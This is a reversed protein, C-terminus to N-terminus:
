KGEVKSKFEDLQKQLEAQVKDIGAEKLKERYKEVAKVPDGAKGFSIATEYTNVVNQLSTLETEIPQKNFVFRGYPFPKAIKEFESYYDKIGDWDDPGVIQFKDERGGWFNSSFTDRQENYGEPRALKGDKEAYQVGEIGYNLLRYVEKDSRILDYVMLAREPNQSNASISTGGHTISLKLINNNNKSIFPFMQLDAGPQERAVTTHLGKLTETHHAKMGNKGAKFAQDVDGKFNLVDERWYGKDGWEKMKKAFEVYIDDFVPLTVSYKEDYSKAYFIAPSVFDLAVHDTNTLIYGYALNATTINAQVEWPIVDPKNDKIGQFYKGLTDFDRIPETIGFEKAWDARYIAGHNTWQTFNNEPMLVIKGEYKCEEWQEPTVSAWVNPAYKPILEDLTLFAGKQANQWTELWDTATTILDVPEGSALLLNYKTLWDAWEIWKLHMNANIKKEMIENWKEQVKVDQGNTPPDGLVVYSVDVFKSTDISSAAANSDSTAATSSVAASGTSTSESNGGCAALGLVMVAALTFALVKSFKRM